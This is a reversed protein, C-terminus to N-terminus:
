EKRNLAEQGMRELVSRVIRAINFADDGGRHHTGLLPLKEKGLAGDMGIKKGELAVEAYWRKLNVHRESFPYPVAFSQCQEAFINRDYDGWSAWVRDGSQYHDRLYVCADEFTKGDRLMEATLTTLETCFPSIKSGAPKVLISEANSIAHTEINFRCVGIEIIESQEGPPPLGKWCTSEVDVILWENENM